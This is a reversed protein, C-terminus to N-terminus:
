GGASELWLEDSRALAGADIVLVGRSRRGPLDLYVVEETWVGGDGGKASTYSTLRASLRRIGHQFLSRVESREISGDGDDRWLGLYRWYRDRGTVAGDGDSDLVSLTGCGRPGAPPPAATEGRAPAPEPEPAARPAEPLPAPTEPQPPSPPEAAPTTASETDSPRAERWERLRREFREREAPTLEELLRELERALEVAREVKAPAPEPEAQNAM